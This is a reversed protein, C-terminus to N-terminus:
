YVRGPAAAAAAATAATTLEVVRREGVCVWDVLQYATAGDCVSSVRCLFPVM